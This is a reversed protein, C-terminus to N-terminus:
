GSYSDKTDLISRMQKERAPRKVTRRGNNASRIFLDVLVTLAIKEQPALTLPKTKRKVSVCAPLHPKLIAWAKRFIRPPPRQFNAEYGRHKRYHNQQRRLYEAKEETSARGTKRQHFMPLGDSEALKDPTTVPLGLPNEGTTLEVGMAPGVWGCVASLELPRTAQRGPKAVPPTFPRDYGYNAMLASYQSLVPRWASGGEIGLTISPSETKPRCFKAM